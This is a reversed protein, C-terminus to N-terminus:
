IWRKEREDDPKNLESEIADNLSEASPSIRGVVLEVSGKSIDKGMRGYVFVLERRPTTLENLVAAVDDLSGAKNNLLLIGVFQELAKHPVGVTNIKATYPLIGIFYKGDVPRFGLIIAALTHAL